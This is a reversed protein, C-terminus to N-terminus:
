PYAHLLEHGDICIHKIKIFLCYFHRANLLQPSKVSIFQRNDKVSFLLAKIILCSQKKLRLLLLQGLNM